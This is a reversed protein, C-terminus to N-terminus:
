CVMVSFQKTVMSISSFVIGMLDIKIGTMFEEKFQQFRIEKKIQQDLRCIPIIKGHEQKRLIQAQVQMLLRQNVGYELGTLAKVQM